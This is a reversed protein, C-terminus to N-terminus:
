ARSISVSRWCRAGRSAEGSVFARIARSIPRHVASKPSENGAERRSRATVTGATPRNIAATNTTAPTKTLMTGMATAPATPMHIARARKYFSKM